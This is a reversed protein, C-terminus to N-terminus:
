LDFNAQDSGEPPVDFTLTGDVAHVPLMISPAVVEDTLASEPQDIKITVTHAGLVAGDASHEDLIKLSYYGEADTRGFSGPGPTANGEQHPQFSVLLDAIPKGKLTVRGSVPALEYDQGGCGLPVLCGVLVTVLLCYFHRRPHTRCLKPQSAIM